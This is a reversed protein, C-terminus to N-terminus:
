LFFFLLWRPKLLFSLNLWKGLGFEGLAVVKQRQDAVLQVLRQVYVAADEAEMEGCNTPHCGVTCFLSAHRAALEAAARSEALSTGTVVIKEVGVACARQLVAEFDPAHYQTGNYVGFFM